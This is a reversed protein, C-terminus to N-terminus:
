KKTRQDKMAKIKEKLKMELEKTQDESKKEMMMQKRKEYFEDRQEANRKKEGMLNNLESIMYDQDQISDANVDWPCWYGVPASFTHVFNEVENNLKKAQEKAEKEDEYVGRIKFGRISTEDTFEKNFASELEKENKSKYADFRDTLEEQDIKYTRLTKAVQEDENLLVEEKISGLLEAAAKYIPDKSTKYATLKKELAKTFDANINKAINTATDIIQKNVDHYLFRNAEYLFRQKIRDNPSVFSILCHRQTFSRAKCETLDMVVPPDVKLHEAKRTTNSSM